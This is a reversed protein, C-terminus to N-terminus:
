QKCSIESGVSSVKISELKNKLKESLILASNSAMNCPLNIIMTCAEEARPCSGKVYGLSNSSGKLGVLPERFWIADCDIFNNLNEYLKLKSPSLFAIRLPIIELDEREYVRVLDGFGASKLVHLFLEGNKVRIVKEQEWKEIEKLGVHALFSPLKLPYKYSSNPKPSGFDEEFFGSKKRLIKRRIASLLRLKGFNEKNAYKAELCLQNFLQKQHKKGIDPSSEKIAELKTNLNSNSTYILGGILTNIPKTHDTSFLAADGFTGVRQGKVTSGLSLACDEMLFVKNEKALKAISSIDCPIGFSHQAVIM